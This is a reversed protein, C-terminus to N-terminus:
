PDRRRLGDVDRLGKYDATDFEDDEADDIGCVFEFMDSDCDVDVCIKFKVENDVNCDGCMLFEVDDLNAWFVM